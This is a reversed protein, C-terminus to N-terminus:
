KMLIMRKLDVFDGATIRYMYIGSSIERGADDRANWLTEYVGANIFEGDILTAIRQGLMNYIELRVTAAKPLAFRIYTTPNFPNPYNQDLAFETPIESDFREVSVIDGTTFSWIASWEGAGVESIARVRWYYQTFKELNTAEYFTNSISANDVVLTAFNDSRSIQLRYHTANPVANWLMVANTVDTGGNSPSVLIPAVPFAEGTTFSYEDSWDSEGGVNSANVRWYYTTFATLEDVVRYSTSDIDAVDLVLNNFATDSAVQLRYDDARSAQNWDLLPKTSVSTAGDAPSALIPIDPIAIITTFSWVTSWLSTGSENSANVRWYYLTSNELGTPQYSTNTINGVNVVTSSFDLVKSIQIRYSDAGSATQWTATFSTSVDASGDEPTLLVPAVPVGARTTFDRVQSWEGDGFENTARVRWYYMRVEDFGDVQLTTDTLASQDTFTSSFDSVTSIQLRYTEAGAAPNWRFTISMPQDMAGDVPSVLLPAPPIGVTNFTWVTSWESQTQGETVARVRWYYTINLPLNEIVKTTDSIGSENIVTTSFDSLTSVQLHYTQALDVSRWIFAVDESLDLSGDAPSVLLPASPHPITGIIGMYIDYPSNGTIWLVSHHAGQSWLAHTGNIQNIDEDPSWKITLPGWTEGNNTTEKYRIDNGDFDWLRVAGDYTTLFNWEKNLMGNPDVRVWTGDSNRRAVLTESNLLAIGTEPVVLSTSATHWPLGTNEIQGLTGNDWLRARFGRNPDGTSTRFNGWTFLIKGEDIEIVSVSRGNAWWNYSVALDVPFGSRSVWTGDTATSSLAIPKFNSDTEPGDSVKTIIWPQKNSDVFISFHRPSVQFENFNTIRVKWTTDSYATVEPDFTISGDPNAKGRRYRLDGDQARIFHFYEGDFAMNFQPSNTAAFIVTSNSWEAGDEIKRTRWVANSGNSYFVWTREFATYPGFNDFAYGVPTEASSGGPSVISYFDIARQNQQSEASFSLFLLVSIAFLFYRHRM